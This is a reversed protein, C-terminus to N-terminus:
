ALEKAAALVAEYDPETGVEPVLEIYRVIGERDIVFVCRALSRHAPMLVGYARGFDTTKHDSLMTVKDVGTAGCWRKQTFPLDVSVTLIEIDDDLTAAELNFRRTETDCVGTDVSLISSIICVKGAYDSLTKPKLDTGLLTFDPAKQGIM